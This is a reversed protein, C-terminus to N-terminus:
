IAFAIWYFTGDYPIAGTNDQRVAQYSVQTPYADFFGVQRPETMTSYFGATIFHLHNISIPFYITGSSYGTVNGWQIILGNAFKVYGNTALSAAIIGGTSAASATAALVGSSISLGSGVKIGGLVSASATPLKYANAGAAIGNLKALLVDTFDNSSLGMGTVKDVKNQTKELICQYVRLPTMIKKNDTGAEAEEKAAIRYLLAKVLMLPTIYKEDIVGAEAETQTAKDDTIVIKDVINLDTDVVWTGVTSDDDNNSVTYRYVKKLDTRYCKMGEVLNNTPFATGAFDSAVASFNKNIKERDNKILGSGLLKSFDQSM